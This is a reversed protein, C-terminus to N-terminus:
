DERKWGAENVVSFSLTPGETPAVSWVAEVDDGVHATVGGTVASVIRPGEELAILAVGYPPTENESFARHYVVFSHVKGYGSAKMETLESSWCESCFTAGPALVVGCVSCKKLRLENRAVGEWFAINQEDRFFREETL